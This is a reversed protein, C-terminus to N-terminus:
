KRKIIGWNIRMRPAPPVELHDFSVVLAGLTTACASLYVVFNVIKLYWSWLAYVRDHIIQFFSIVVMVLYVALFVQVSLVFFFKIWKM